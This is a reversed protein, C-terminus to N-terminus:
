VFQFVKSMKYFFFSVGKADQRFFFMLKEQLTLLKLKYFKQVFVSYNSFLNKGTQQDFVVFFWHLYM